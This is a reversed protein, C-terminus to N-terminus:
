EICVVAPATCDTRMSTLYQTMWLNPSKCIVSGAEWLRVDSYQLALLISSLCFAQCAALVYLSITVGRSQVMGNAFFGSSYLVMDRAFNILAVVHLANTGHTDIVYVM